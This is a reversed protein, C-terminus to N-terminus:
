APVHDVMALISSIVAALMSSVVTALVSAIVTTTAPLPFRALIRPYPLDPPTYRVPLFRVDSSSPDDDSLLSCKVTNSNLLTLPRVQQHCGKYDGDSVSLSM